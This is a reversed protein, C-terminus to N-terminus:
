VFSLVNRDVPATYSVDLCCSYTFTMAEMWFGGSGNSRNAVFHFFVRPRVTHIGDVNRTRIPSSIIIVEYGVLLFNTFGKRRRRNPAM